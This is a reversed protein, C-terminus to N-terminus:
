SGHVSLRAARELGERRIYVYGERGEGPMEVSFHRGEVLGIDRLRHTERMVNDPDTSVFRVVLAGSRAHGVHYKPWGEKSVRGSELKNLWQGAKKEGV